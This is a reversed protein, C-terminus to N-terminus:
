AKSLSKNRNRVIEQAKNWHESGYEDSAALRRAEAEIQAHLEAPGVSPDVRAASTKEEQPTANTNEAPQKFM